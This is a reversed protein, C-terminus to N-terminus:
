AGKPSNPLRAPPSEIQNRLRDLEQHGRAAQHYVRLMFLIVPAMRTRAAAMRNGEDVFSSKLLRRNKATPAKPSPNKVQPRAVSLSPLLGLYAMGLLGFLGTIQVLKGMGKYLDGDM